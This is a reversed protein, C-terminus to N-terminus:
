FQIKGSIMGIKAMSALTWFLGTWFCIRGVDAVWADAVKSWKTFILWVILGVLCVLLPISIM